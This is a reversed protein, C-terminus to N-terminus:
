LLCNGPGASIIHNEVLTQTPTIQDALAAEALALKAQQIKVNLPNPAHDHDGKFALGGERSFSCKGKCGNKETCRFFIKAKNVGCKTYSYGNRHITKGGKRNKM